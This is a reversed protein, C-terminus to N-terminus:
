MDGSRLTGSASVVNTAREAAAYPWCCGGEPGDGDPGPAAGLEVVVVVVLTLRAAADDDRLVSVFEWGSM